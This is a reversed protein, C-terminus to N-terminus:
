QKYYEHKRSFYDKTIEIVKPSLLILAILNPVAMLGLAIDGFGWVIELSVIAGIFHVIVYIIKYPRIARNGILYEASRDGYYSWSIATSIAFLFVAITIIKDGWPFLPMLGTKFALATLPSGNLRDGEVIVEHSNTLVIALGTLTCIILTDVLPGMMAVVGERAPEKTKAAAHAIPASGQGAENSFLGRKVGWVMTNLFLLFGGGAFGVLEARPSFAQSIIKGFTPIVEQWHMVLISLAGLVYIIAMGPALKAAVRGIRKIGGLIVLAVLVTTILGTFIRVPEVPIGMFNIQQVFWHEPSLLGNFESLVQDSVTFAQISNGTGFSSIVALTAFAMGLPKWSKGLGKEIYYMPGGSASGDTHIQRYHLALTAEAYKLAMGFIATLWMWFLAGPGGYYIATAVGAINGIGVTASLAASLAQFHNIDGEDEPNDYKGRIVNWSHKLRFLQIFRLRLTIFIGTGLLIVVMLPMLEPWGWVTGSVTQIFNKVAEM